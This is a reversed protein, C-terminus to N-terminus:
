FDVSAMISVRREVSAASTQRQPSDLLNQASLALTLNDTIRYAIRADMTVYNPIRVLTGSPLLAGAGQISDFQSEYRGYGDIEWPGHAWGLNIDVVHVPHTHEFDVLVSTAPARVHIATM